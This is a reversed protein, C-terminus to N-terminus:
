RKLRLGGFGGLYDIKGIQVGMFRLIDYATTAHFYFNPQSFSLLFDEATFDMRFDGLEFRADRGEFSDIERPEIEKLTAQADTILQQLAAFSGTFPTMDPVFVGKRVSEIATVSHIVTAKVQYSFPLMDPALTAQLVTELAVGKEKCHAEAKDLFGSVAALMQLYTPVVAAYLSFAM